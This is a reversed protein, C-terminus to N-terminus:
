LFYYEITRQITEITLPYEKTEFTTILQISPVIGNSTYLHLKSYANKYYSPDDMRGFHEWYYTRGTNPHRITFDPYVISEGLQLPCEYRFPIKHIHLLMDILSESKSRVLHGSSTKHTLQEPYKTNHEYPSTMWISLEESLPKFYPTLLEQYGSPTDLLQNSKPTSSTRHRLYFDIAKKEALLDDLLATLYKKAALQEALKREKKPLYTQTHGDSLYWKYRNENRACILKGAPLSQLQSQITKIEAELRNQETLIRDYIM